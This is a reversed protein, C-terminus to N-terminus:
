APGGGKREYLTAVWGYDTRTHLLRKVLGKVGAAGDGAENTASPAGPVVADASAPLVHGCMPCPIDIHFPNGDGSPRRRWEAIESVGVYYKKPGMFFTERPRFGWDGLLGDMVRADYRRMHYDPNFRSNCSPCRILSREMDEENPVSILVYRRAVRCIEGLGARYITTPLHEIVELCTAIDFGRDPFPLSDISAPTKEARVRKLAALSRDTAHITDFRGQMGMLLHVFAGNGCGVDLVTRADAPIKSAIMRFRDVQNHFVADTWFGDNEYYQQEISM